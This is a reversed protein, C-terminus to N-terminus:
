LVELIRNQGQHAGQDQNVDAQCLEKASVSGEVLNKYLAALEDLDTNGTGDTTHEDDSSVIAENTEEVKHPDASPQPLLVGLVDSLIM